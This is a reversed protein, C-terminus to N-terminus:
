EGLTIDIGKVKVVITNFGNVKGDQVLRCSLYGPTAFFVLGNVYVM